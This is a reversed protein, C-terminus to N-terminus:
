PVLSDAPVRPCVEKSLTDRTGKHPQGQKDKAHGEIEDPFEGWQGGIDRRVSRGVSNRSDIM